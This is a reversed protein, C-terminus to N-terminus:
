PTKLRYFGSSAPMPLTVEDQLNTLNLVPPNTVDAWNTTTLDPNQQLVFNTSPMTWSLALNGNTPAINLSPGPPTQATWIGGGVTAGPINTSLNGADAAVLKCGDASSAVCTWNHVPVNNSTWTAGGNTSTYIPGTVVPNQLSHSRGAVAVLRSGDASSALAIWNTPSASSQAWTTGSNTSIFILQGSIAACKASDASSSVFSAAVPNTLMWSNGSNTSILIRFGGIVLRTGDASSAVSNWTGNPLNNTIWAAGSNTSTFLAGGLSSSILAALMRGDASSALSYSTTGIKSVRPLNNSMWTAGSNTSAYFSGTYSLPPPGVIPSPEGVAALRAGDASSAVRFWGSQPASTQTWTAGSNTSVWIGSANAVAVLKTGDASSAVATWNTVPASTQTWTQAFAFNATLLATSAVLLNKFNKM